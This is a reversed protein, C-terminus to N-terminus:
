LPKRVTRSIYWVDEVTDVLKKFFGRYIGPAKDCDM